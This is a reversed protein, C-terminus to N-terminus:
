PTSMSINVPAGHNLEPTTAATENEAAPGKDEFGTVITDGTYTGDAGSTGAALDCLFGDCTWAIGKVTAAVTIAEKGTEPDEVNTYHVGHLGEQPGVTVTIGFSPVKIEFKNGSACEINVPAHEEAPEGHTTTDSDFVYACHNEIVEAAGFSTTCKDYTPVITVSDSETGTETGDFHITECETSLTSEGSGITFVHDGEATGTFNTPNAESNFTHEINEAQAGVAAVASMAFVALLALGLAKFRRTM